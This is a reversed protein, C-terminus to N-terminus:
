YDGYNEMVSSDGLVRDDIEFDRAKEERWKAEGEKRIRSLEGLYPKGIDPAVECLTKVIGWADVNGGDSLTYDALQWDYEGAAYDQRAGELVRDLLGKIKEEIAM